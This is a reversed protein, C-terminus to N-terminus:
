NPTTLSKILQLCDLLLLLLLLLMRAFCLWCCQVQVTSMDVTWVQKHWDFLFLVYICPKISCKNHPPRTGLLLPM